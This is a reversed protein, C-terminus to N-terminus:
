GFRIGLTGQREVYLLVYSLFTFDNVKCDAQLHISIWCGVQIGTEGEGGSGTIFENDPDLDYNGCIGCLQGFYRGPAHIKLRREFNWRIEVGYQELM